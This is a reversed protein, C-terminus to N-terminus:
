GSETEESENRVDGRNVWYRIIHKDTSQLLYESLWQRFIGWIEPYKTYEFVNLGISKAKDFDIVEEHTNFGEVLRKAIDQSKKEDLGSKTLIEEAYNEMMVLVSLAADIDAANCGEALVKYTYPADRESLNKFKETIFQFGRKTSLASGGYDSHPDLPSLQSMMGMIIENGVLAILTGGSAALHPVFVIINEFNKRLAKAVKYSSQVLGGPSNILLYLNKADSNYEKIRDIATEIGFEESIGVSASISRSPTVKRGVYSAIIAIFVDGKRSIKELPEIIEEQEEEEVDLIKEMASSLKAM